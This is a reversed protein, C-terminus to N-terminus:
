FSRGMAGLFARVTEPDLANGAEDTLSELAGGVVSMPRRGARPQTMATFRMAVALIRAGLPIAEGALGDPVGGGDFREHQHRVMHAIEQLGEINALWDAGSIVANRVGEREDPTLSSQKQLITDPVAMKGVEHLLAAFEVRESELPSLGLARAILGAYYAMAQTHGSRDPERREATTALLEALERYSSALREHRRAVSLASGASAAAAELLSQLREPLLGDETAIWLLAVGIVEGSGTANPVRLPLALAPLAATPEDSPLNASEPMLADADQSSDAVTNVWDCVEGIIVQLHAPARAVFFPARPLSGWLHAANLRAETFVDGDFSEEELAENELGEYLEPAPPAQEVALLRLADTPWERAFVAVIQADTFERLGLAIRTAVDESDSGDGEHLRHLWSLLRRTGDAILQDPENRWDAVSLYATSM